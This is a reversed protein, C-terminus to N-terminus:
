NDWECVIGDNDPDKMYQYASHNKRVPAIKHQRAEKCTIRGDGNSDYLKLADEKETQTPDENEKKDPKTPDKNVADEKKDSKTQSTIESEPGCSLLIFFSCFAIVAKMILKRKKNEKDM